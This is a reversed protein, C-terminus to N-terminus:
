ISRFFISLKSAMLTANRSKLEAAEPYYCSFLSRLTPANETPLSAVRLRLSSSKSEPLNSTRCIALDLGRLNLDPNDFTPSTPHSIETERISSDHEMSFSIEAEINADDVVGHVERNWLGKGDQEALEGFDLETVTRFSDVETESVSAYCPFAATATDEDDTELM